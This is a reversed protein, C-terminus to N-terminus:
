AQGNTKAKKGDIYAQAADKLPPLSMQASMLIGFADAHCILGTWGMELRSTCLVPDFAFGIVPINNARAADRIRELAAIFEPETGDQSGRELGMSMRLDTPGVMFADVLLSPSM